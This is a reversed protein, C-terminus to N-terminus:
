KFDPVVKACYFGGGFKMLDGTEKAKSWVKELASGDRGYRQCFEAANVVKAKSLMDSWAVGFKNQFEVQKDKSVNLDAPTTLSAKNAIAYYHNDILKEEDIQKAELEGEQLIKIGRGTFTSKVLDEVQPTLAHPKIFVFAENTSVSPPKVPLGQIALAKAVCDQSNLDELSDFLSVNKGELKVQPDKTWDRIVSEPIGAKLLVKGFSDAKLDAKLWNLRENLGEFPSASAHVGNDGVNPPAKLGLDRWKALITARLSGEAAQTPDTAGLVKGRFDAWSLKKSDWEVTYYHIKAGPTTFKDRMAMYFGNIVFVPEREKSRKQYYWAGGAVAGGFLLWKMTKSM